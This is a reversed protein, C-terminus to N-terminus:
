GQREYGANSVSIERLYGVTILRGPLNLRGYSRWYPALDFFMEEKIPHKTV